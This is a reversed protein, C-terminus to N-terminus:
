LLSSVKWVSVFNVQQQHHLRNRAGSISASPVRLFSKQVTPIQGLSNNTTTTATLPAQSSINSPPVAHPTADSADFDMSQATQISMVSMGLTSPNRKPKFAVAKDRVYPSAAYM